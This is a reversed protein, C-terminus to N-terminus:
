PIPDPSATSAHVTCGTGNYDVHAFMRGTYGETSIRQIRNTLKTIHKDPLTMQSQVTSVAQDITHVVGVVSGLVGVITYQM